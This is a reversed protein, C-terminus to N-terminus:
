SLHIEKISKTIWEISPRKDFDALISNSLITKYTTIYITHAAAAVLEEIKEKHMHLFSLFLINISYVDWSLSYTKMNQIIESNLRNIFPQFLNQHNTKFVEIQNEDFLQTFSHSSTFGELLSTFLEQTFIEAPIGALKSIMYIDFCWVLNDNYDPFFDNTTELQSQIFGMRFDSIVPIANIPDYLINENTLHFHIIPSDLSQLISISHLLQLHSNVFITVFKNKQKIEQLQFILHQFLNDKGVKRYKCLIIENNNPQQSKLVMEEITKECNEVKEKDFTGFSLPETELLLQFYLHPHINYEKIINSLYEETNSLETKLQIKEDYQSSSGITEDQKIHCTEKRNLLHSRTNKELTDLEEMQTTDM